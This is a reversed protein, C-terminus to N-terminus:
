FFLAEQMLRTKLGASPLREVDKEALKSRVMKIIQDIKDIIVNLWLLIMVCESDDNTYKGDQFTTVVPVKLVEVM